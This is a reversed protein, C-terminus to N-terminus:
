DLNQKPITSIGIGVFNNADISTCWGLEHSLDLDILHLDWIFFRFDFNNSISGLPM